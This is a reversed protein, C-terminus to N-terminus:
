RFAAVVLLAWVAVAVPLKSLTGLVRGLVAGFAPKASDRLTTRGDWMEGLVAGAATGVVAGILTGVLPIWILVTGFIAGVVGGAVSGLMGRPSAGFKKAGAASLLFELLEGVLGLLVAAVLTLPHFTLPADPQLWLWDLLDILVAAAILIWTGPLGVVVLFVCLVGFASFLAGIGIPLHELYNV